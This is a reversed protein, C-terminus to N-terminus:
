AASAAIIDVTRANTFTALVASCLASFAVVCGLRATQSRIYYLGIISLVPMVSSFVIALLRIFGSIKSDSYYSM